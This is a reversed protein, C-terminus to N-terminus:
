GLLADLEGALRTDRESLGGVDHSTLWVDVRNFVNFWEPHHNAREALLAARSMFGFAAVFDEFEFSRFLKGESLSWEPLAKLAQQVQM